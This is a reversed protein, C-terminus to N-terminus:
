IEEAKKILEACQITIEGTDFPWDCGGSLMENVLSIAGEPTNPVDTYEKPDVELTIIVTM